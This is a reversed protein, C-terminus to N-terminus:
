CEETPETTSLFTCKECTLEIQNNVVRIRGRIGIVGGIECHNKVNELISNSLKIMIKDPVNDITISDDNIKVLRGLLVYQNAM